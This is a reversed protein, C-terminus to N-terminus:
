QMRPPYVRLKPHCAKPVCAPSRLNIPFEVAWKECTEADYLHLQAHCTMWLEVEFVEVGCLYIQVWGFRRQLPLYSYAPLKFILLCVLLRLLRVKADILWM